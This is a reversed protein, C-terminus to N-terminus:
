SSQAPDGRHCVVEYGIAAMREKLLRLQQASELGSHLKNDYLTYKERAAAPSLNPMCVNAGARIGLERGQPHLTGLATTAPLLGPPLVLRVLALLFLTLEVSGAKEGAFPTNKQPIFPGLGVMQPQLRQIFELDEALHEPTQGPSGIMMGCGVAYGLDKLDWLCRQRNEPSMASPHLMRYHDFNATEHRLLYRDAGAERWLAYTERSHEGVSLTVACQPFEAKIQRVLAAIREPPYGPDEGGQLVFTRYGLLWGERCCALIEDEELRYRSVAASGCRIGCYLCNNKCYNTFEILGRIYVTNGYYQRRQADALRFLTQALEPTRGRILAALDNRSLTHERALTEVIELM